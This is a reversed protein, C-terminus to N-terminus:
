EASTRSRTSIIGTRATLAWGKELSAKEASPYWIDVGLRSPM